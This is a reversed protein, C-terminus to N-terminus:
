AHSGIDIFTAGTYLLERCLQTTLPEPDRSLLLHFQTWEGPDLFMRFGAPLSRMGPRLLRRVLSVLRDRGRFYPMDLLRACLREPLNM